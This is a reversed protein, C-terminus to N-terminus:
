SELKRSFISQITFNKIRQSNTKHNFFVFIVNKEYFNFFNAFIKDFTLNHWFITVASLPHRFGDHQKQEKTIKPSNEM